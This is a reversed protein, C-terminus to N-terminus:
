LKIIIGKLFVVIYGWKDFWKDVIDLGEESELSVTNEGYDINYIKYAKQKKNIIIFINSPLKIIENILTEHISPTCVESIIFNDAFDKNLSINQKGILHEELLLFSNSLAFYKEPKNEYIYLGFSGYYDQYLRIEDGIQRIMIYIGEPEPEEYYGLLKYYNDTLIGKKSVSFGFM